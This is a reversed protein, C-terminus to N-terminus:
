ATIAQAPRAVTLEKRQGVLSSTTQAAALRQGLRHRLLRQELRRRLRKRLEQRRHRQDNGGGDAPRTFDLNGVSEYDYNSYDLRPYAPHQAQPM